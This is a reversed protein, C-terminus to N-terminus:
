WGSNPFISGLWLGDRQRYLCDSITLSLQICKPSMKLRLKIWIETFVPKCNVLLKAAYGILDNVVEANSFPVWAYMAYHCVIYGFNWLSLTHDSQKCLGFTEESRSTLKLMWEGTTHLVRSSIKRWTICMAMTTTKAQHEPSKSTAECVNAKKTGFYVHHTSVGYLGCSLMGIPRIFFSRLLDM